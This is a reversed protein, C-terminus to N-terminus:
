PDEQASTRPEVECCGAGISGPMIETRLLVAGTTVVADGETLRGKVHVRNGGGHRTVIRPEYVGPQSRVFVVESDGVRQVADRPVEFGSGRGIAIRATVFQNAKLRGEPNPVDARVAVTRTRPDVESSIWSIEGQIFTGEEGPLTVSVVDGRGLQAAQHDPVDCTVWMSSTDVITGLSHEETALQGLVAPRRVLTGGIPARLQYRGSTNDSSAGAMRLSEEAAALDATASAFESEATELEWDASVKRQNLARERKLEARALRVREQASRLHAQMESVRTSALEFLPDGQAVHAGLEVTVERVIGPIIARIDATRDSDFAIRAPVELSQVAQGPAIHVTEIGASKEIGPHNFRVIRSEIQAAQVEPSLAGPNCTPCVSEPLQHEPCWDGSAKFQPILEPNCLTCMSEPVAHGACWDAVQAAAGGTTPAPNCPPCVSEPLGHGACWDGSAKFQPILEPNCITCMSEPVEHGACWDAPPAPADASPTPNCPPCVSEPLGHGACWDGSAKFQPILEPNCITCMSEPVEHGACWDAPPAPADASPTPNCPPCVSEPLGHGACWDGSAKFQPILEPNCITCKSEPVEHGACWDSGGATQATACVYAAGIGVQPPHTIQGYGTSFWLVCIMAVAFRGHAGKHTAM